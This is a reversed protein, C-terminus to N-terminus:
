PAVFVLGNDNVAIDWPAMGKLKIGNIYIGNKDLFQIRRNNNDSVILLDHSIRIRRPNNFEGPGQGERGIRILFNGFSDFKFINRAKSDSIYINGSSDSCIHSAGFFCIDEKEIDESPFSFKLELEYEKIEKQKTNKNAIASVFTFLIPIIVFLRVTTKM